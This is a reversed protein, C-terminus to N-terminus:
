KSVMKAKAASPGPLEAPVPMDKPLLVWMRGTQKMMGAKKGAENGFGWFFDARVNGRIAGGTDQALVLRDLPQDSAPLTTALWVPAGLPIARADVAISRGGTIPVGLAGMPGNGNNPLERFFVYSPNQALLEPLKDPNREGWAKINQMSTQALPLEGREALVRGIARYPYGNQDAYVVRMMSGDPLQIRGSGQIQLFFAEVPNDVWVLESGKLPHTGNDIDARALYPVVKNGQVRGRLRMNKLEPYVSGLDITLLDAPPSYLPVSYKASPTLSGHLLPEYYGTILGDESGDPQRSQYLAFRSEFFARVTEADVPKLAESAACVAQWEPRTKLVTCSQLWAPWAWLLNDDQWGPLSSWDAPSLNPM